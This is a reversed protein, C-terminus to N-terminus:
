ADQHFRGLRAVEGSVRIGGRLARHFRHAPRHGCIVRSVSNAHIYDSGSKHARGGALTRLGGRLQLFENALLLWQGAAHDVDLVHRAGRYKMQALISTRNGALAQGHIRAPAQGSDSPPITTMSPMSIPPCWIRLPMTSSSPAITAERAIGVGASRSANRGANCSASRESSSVLPRGAPTPTPQLPTISGSLVRM